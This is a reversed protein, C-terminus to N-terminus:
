MRYTSSQFCWIMWETINEYTMHEKNITNRRVYEIVKERNIRFLSAAAILILHLAIIDDEPLHPYEERLDDAESPDDYVTAFTLRQSTM